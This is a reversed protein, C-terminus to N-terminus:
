SQGRKSALDLAVAASGIIGADNGFKAPVIKLHSRFSLTLQAHMKAKLPGFLLNGAKAIGGGIVIRDPNLLWVCNCLGSALQTTFLDWVELAVPDGRRAAASLARPTCDEDSVRCRAKDYLERALATVERNGVMKELAGINGHEGTAAVGRYDISMQGIEGAGYTSGRYLGGNLVLGAM